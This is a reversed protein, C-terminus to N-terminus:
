ALWEADPAGLFKRTWGSVSRVKGILHPAAQEFGQRFSEAGPWIPGKDIKGQDRALPIGCLVVRDFGLDLARKVAFLGSSGSKTQGPFLYPLRHTFLKHEINAQEHVVHEAAPPFGREARVRADAVLMEPHLSVWSDLERPWHRGAGKAAVVGDFPALDLAAEIDAFLCLAAGLVLCRRSM